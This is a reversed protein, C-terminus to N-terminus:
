EVTAQPDAEVLIRMNKSKADEKFFNAIKICKDRLNVEALNPSESTRRLREHELLRRMGTTTHKITRRAGDLINCAAEFQESARLQNNLLNLSSSIVLMNNSLDHSFFSLFKLEAEAAERLKDKQSQVMALVGQQIMVDVTAHL